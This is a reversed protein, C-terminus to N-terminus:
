YTPCPPQTIQTRKLVCADNKQLKNYHEEHGPDWLIPKERYTDIFLLTKGRHENHCREVSQRVQLTVSLPFRSFVSLVISRGRARAARM